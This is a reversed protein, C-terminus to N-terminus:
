IAPDGDRHQESESAMEDEAENAASDQAVNVLMRRLLDLFAKLDVGNAGAADMEEDHRAGFHQVNGPTHWYFSWPVAGSAIIETVFHYTKMSPAGECRSISSSDQPATEFHELGCSIRSGTSSLSSRSLAPTSPPPRPLLRPSPNPNYAERARAEPSKLPQKLNIPTDDSGWGGPPQSYLSSSRRVRCETYGSFYVPTDTETSDLGPSPTMEGEYLSQSDEDSHTDSHQEMIEEM